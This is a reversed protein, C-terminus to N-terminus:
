PPGVQLFQAFHEVLSLAAEENDCGGVKLCFHIRGDFAGFFAGLGFQLGIGVSELLINIGKRFSSLASEDKPSFRGADM